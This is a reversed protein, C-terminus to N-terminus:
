FNMYEPDAGKQSSFAVAAGDKGLLPNTVDV